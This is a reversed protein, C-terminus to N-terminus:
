LVRMNDDENMNSIYAM